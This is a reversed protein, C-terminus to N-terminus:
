STSSSFVAGTFPSVSGSVLTEVGSGFPQERHCVAGATPKFMIAQLTRCNRSENLM